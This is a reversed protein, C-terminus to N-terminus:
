QRGALTKVRERLSRLIVKRGQESPHNKMRGSQLFFADLGVGQDAAAAVMEDRMSVYPISHQKFLARLKLERGGPRGPPLTGPSCFLVFGFELERSELEAKM